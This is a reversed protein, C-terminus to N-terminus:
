AAYEKQTIVTRCAGNGADYQRYICPKRCIRPYLTLIGPNSSLHLFNHYKCHYHFVVNWPSKYFFSVLIVIYFTFCQIESFKLYLAKANM